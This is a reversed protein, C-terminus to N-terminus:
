RGGRSRDQARKLVWSWRGGRSRAETSGCIIRWSEVERRKIEGPSEQSGLEMERRKMEGPSEQSGLEMERRKIEGPSEIVAWSWRGKKPDRRSGCIIRWSEIVAWSWRGATSREQARPHRNGGERGCKISRILNRSSYSLQPPREPSGM